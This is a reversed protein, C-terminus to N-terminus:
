IEWRSVEKDSGDDDLESISQMLSFLNMRGSRNPSPCVQTPLPTLPFHFFSLPYPPLCSSISSMGLFVTPCFFLMCFVASLIFKVLFIYAILLYSSRNKLWKSQWQWPSNHNPKPKFQSVTSHTCRSCNSSSPCARWIGPPFVFYLM